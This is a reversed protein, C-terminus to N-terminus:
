VPSLKKFFQCINLSWSHWTTMFVHLLFPFPDAIISYIIPEELLPFINVYIYFNVSGGGCFPYIGLFGYCSWLWAAPFYLICFLIKFATLPSFVFSPQTRLLFLQPFTIVLIKCVTFIVCNTHTHAHTYICKHTHRTNSFPLFENQRTHKGTNEVHNASFVQRNEWQINKAGKAFIIQM